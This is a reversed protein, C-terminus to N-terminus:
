GIGAIFPLEIRGQALQRAKGNWICIEIPAHPHLLCDELQECLLVFHRPDLLSFVSWDHINDIGRSYGLFLGERWTKNEREQQCQKRDSYRGCQNDEALSPRLEIGVIRALRKSTFNDRNNAPPPM